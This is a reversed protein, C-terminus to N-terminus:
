AAAARPRQLLAQLLARVQPRKHETVTAFGYCVAMIAALVGACALPSEIQRVGAAGLLRILPYHLLYLSFSMNALLRVPAEIRLLLKVEGALLSHLGRIGLAVALALATDTLFSLLQGALWFQLPVDPDRGPAFLHSLMGLTAFAVAVHIWATLAPLRESGLCRVLLVGALWAPLMLLVRPGAIAALLALWFWRKGGRLYM